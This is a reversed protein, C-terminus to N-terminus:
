IGFGLYMHLIIMVNKITGKRTYKHTHTHTNHNILM